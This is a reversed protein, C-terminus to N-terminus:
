CCPFCIKLFNLYFHSVASFYWFPQRHIPEVVHGVAAVAVVLVLGLGLPSHTQNNSIRVEKDFHDTNLSNKFGLASWAFCISSLLCAMVSMFFLMKDWIRVCSARALRSDDDFRRHGEFM